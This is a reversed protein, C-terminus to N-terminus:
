ERNLVKGLIKVVGIYANLRGRVFNTQVAITRGLLMTKDHKGDHVPWEPSGESAPRGCRAFELWYESAQREFERDADTLIAKTDEFLEGTDLLYTIESGHAVGDPFRARSQVASYDFYYRWTPALKSHRDAIWAREHYLSCTASLWVASSPMM